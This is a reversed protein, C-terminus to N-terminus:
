NESQTQKFNLETSCEFSPQTKELLRPNDKQQMYTKINYHEQGSSKM